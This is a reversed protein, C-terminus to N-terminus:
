YYLPYVYENEPKSISQIEKVDIVPMKKRYYTGIKIKGKVKLWTDNKLSKANEMNCMLGVIQMDAACCIMSLRGIVFDNDSFDTDRFVFGTIEITKGVYNNPNIMLEDLTAIYNEDNVKIIGNEIKKSNIDKNKASDSKVSNEIEASKQSDDSNDLQPNNNSDTASVNSDSNNNINYNNVTTDSNINKSPNDAQSLLAGKLNTGRNKALDSGLSVPPIFLAMCLPIAFIAILLLNVSHKHESFVNRLNFIAIIIFYIACLLIYINMRPHVYMAIEGTYSIQVMFFAFGLLILSRIFAEKNFTIM